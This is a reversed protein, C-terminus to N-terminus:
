LRTGDPLLVPPRPCASVCESWGGPICADLCQYDTCKPECHEACRLVCARRRECRELAAAAALQQPQANGHNSPNSSAHLQFDEHESESWEVGCRLLQALSSTWDSGEGHVQQWDRVTHLAAEFQSERALSVVQAALRGEQDPDYPSRGFMWYVGLLTFVATVGLGVLLTSADRKELLAQREDWSLARGKRPPRVREFREAARAAARTRTFRVWLQAGGILLFVFAGALITTAFGAGWNM